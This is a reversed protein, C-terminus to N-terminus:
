VERLYIIRHRFSLKLDEQVLKELWEQGYGSFYSFINYYREQLGQKPFLSNAAASVREALGRNKRRLKQWSKRELYDLQAKIRGINGPGLRLLDSDIGGLERILRRHIKEVKNVAETCIAKPDIGTTNRLVKAILHNVDEAMESVKLNYETLTHAVEPEALTFGQRPFVPPMRLGFLHYVEKLQGFYAIEGPGGVYAITPFLIDQAVPRLVASTSFQEPHAQIIGALERSTWAVASGKAYFGSDRTQLPLRQNGQITFLGTIGEDVSFAPTFGEGHVLGAGLETLMRAGNRLTSALGDSERAAKQLFPILLRRLGSQMPDAIILGHRGLIATMLRAFWEAWNASHLATEKLLEVMATRDPGEPLSDSFATLFNFISTGVPVLGIPPRGQPRGFVSLRDPLATKGKQVWVHNVEDYDHDESAVWFVPVVPAGLETELRRALQIATVAKYITYLPGTAIGAQQGTLVALCGPKGLRALNQLTREGCNLQLNYATLESVLGARDDAFGGLGHVGSGEETRKIWDRHTRYASLEAPNAEYLRSVKSYDSIYSRFLATQKIIEILDNAGM